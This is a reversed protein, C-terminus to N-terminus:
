QTPKIALVLLGAFLLGIGFLAVATLQEGVVFIALLGATLPEALTMTATTSVTTRKLGTAYLYYALGMTIIGLHLAVIFGQPELLWSFDGWLLIPLLLLSGLSFTMVLVPGQPRTDLLDKSFFTYTAYSGGASFALFIGFVNIELDGSSLILFGCGVIALTTALFWRKTPKRQFKLWELIGAFIPTSSIGVVTGVAVGTKAVAAFFFLQYAAVCIAAFITTRAPWDRWQRVFRMEGRWYTLALLTFTGVIIRVTGVTLPNTGAPSFAQATGTTGWLIAGFAVFWAGNIRKTSQPLPM